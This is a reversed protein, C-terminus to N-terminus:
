PAITFDRVLQAFGLGARFLPFPAVALIVVGCRAGLAGGRWGRVLCFLGVVLTFIAIFAVLVGVGM